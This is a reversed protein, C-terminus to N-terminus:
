KQPGMVYRDDFNKRGGGLTHVRDFVVGISGNSRSRNEISEYGFGGRSNGKYNSCSVLM